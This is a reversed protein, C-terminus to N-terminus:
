IKPIATIAKQGDPSQGMPRERVIHDSHAYWRQGAQAANRSPSDYVDDDVKLRGTEIMVIINIFCRPRYGCPMLREAFREVPRSRRCDILGM